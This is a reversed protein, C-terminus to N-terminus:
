ATGASVKRRQISGNSNSDKEYYQRNEISITSCILTLMIVSYLTYHYGAYVVLIAEIAALSIIHIDGARKTKCIARLRKLIGFHLALFYIFGLLGLDLFFSFYSNEPDYPEFKHIVLHNKLYSYSATNYGTGIILSTPMHIVAEPFNIFYQARANDENGATEQKMEIRAKVGEKMLSITSNPTYLIFVIAICAVGVAPLIKALNKKTLNFFFMCIIGCLAVISISALVGGISLALLWFRRSKLAFAAVITAFLGINAPDSNFGGCRITPGNILSLMGYRIDMAHIYPQFLQNTISISTSYFLGADIVAWALNAISGILIGKMIYTVYKHNRTSYLLLFLIVYIIIKPISSLSTTQWEPLDYFYFFGFISSLVGFLSWQIFYKYIVGKNRALKNCMLLDIFVMFTTISYFSLVRGGIIFSLIPATAFAGFSFYLWEKCRM